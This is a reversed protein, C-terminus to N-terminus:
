INSSLSYRPQPHPEAYLFNQTWDRSGCSLNPLVFRYDWMCFTCSGRENCELDSALKPCMSGVRGGFSFSQHFLFNKYVVLTCFQGLTIVLKFGCLLCHSSELGTLSPDPKNSLTRENDSLTLQLWMHELLQKLLIQHGKPWTYYLVWWAM